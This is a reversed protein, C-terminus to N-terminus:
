FDDYTQYAGRQKMFDVIIIPCYKFYENTKGLSTEPYSERFKYLIKQERKFATTRNKFRILGILDVSDSCLGNKISLLRANLNETLGVKLKSAGGQNIKILYVVPTFKRTLEKRETNSM